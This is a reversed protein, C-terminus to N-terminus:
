RLRLKCTDSTTIAPAARVGIPEKLPARLETGACRSPCITMASANLRHLTSAWCTDSTILPKTALLDCSSRHARNWAAAHAPRAACNRRNVPRGYSPPGATAFPPQPM